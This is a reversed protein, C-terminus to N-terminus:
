IALYKIKDEIQALIIDELYYTLAKPGNAGIKEILIHYIEMIIPCSCWLSITTRNKYLSM